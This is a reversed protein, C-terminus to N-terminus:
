DETMWSRIVSVTEEPYNEVIDEVKKISSAKVQGQVQDLDIKDFPNEDEEGSVLPKGNNDLGPAGGDGASGGAGESLLTGPTANKPGELAPRM